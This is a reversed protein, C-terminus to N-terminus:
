GAHWAKRARVEDIEFRVGQNDSPNLWLMREFVSAAEDFKGLRWLCLGYGHLCRLFPRNDIWGWPLLGDLNEPLSLEGIRVGAEYHRIADKPMADFALNGLHAHADLCRLDAQSLDMLIKRAGEWDGAHKRDNSDIIPDSDIDAPDEGPLVQEMEYEPRMGWAIIPKAWDDIPDGPEGWYHESPNWCGRQELRLPTLGLAKVDLRKSEITGSLYPRGAYTWRKAARVVAIEGPVIDWLRTTRLTIENGSELERCRVATRKVSLVALEVLSDASASAAGSIQALAGGRTGHPFPDIGMWRRYAVLYRGAQQALPIVVDFAAVAHKLGDAGRCQAILGRRANGDYDFKLVEVPVGALMAACPVTVNDEFAQRFAWLQEDGGNANATIADILEDLYQTEADVASLGKTSELTPAEIGQAEAKAPSERETWKESPM